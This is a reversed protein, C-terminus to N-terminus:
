LDNVHAITIKIEGLRDDLSKLVHNATPVVGAVQDGIDAFAMPERSTLVSGPAAPTAAKTGTTIELYSEGLAGLSTIKVLSDSKVPIDQGVRFEIRIRTSDEPDVGLTEIKGAMLGGYRVPAGPTLGAAYKFYALFTTGKSSFAGSVSLVVGLVIGAAVLVFIGVWVQERRSSM